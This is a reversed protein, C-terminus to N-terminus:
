PGPRGTAAHLRAIPTPFDIIGWAALLSFVTGVIMLFAGLGSTFTM